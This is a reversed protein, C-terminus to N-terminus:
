AVETSSSPISSNKALSFEWLRYVRLKFMLQFDMLSLVKYERAFELYQLFMFVRRRYSQLTVSRPISSSLSLSFLEHKFWKSRLLLMFFCFLMMVSLLRVLRPSDLNKTFRFHKSNLFVSIVAFPTRVKDTDKAASLM